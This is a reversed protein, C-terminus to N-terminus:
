ILMTSLVPGLRMFHHPRRELPMCWVSISHLNSKFTPM